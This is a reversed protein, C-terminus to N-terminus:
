SQPNPLNLRPICSRWDSCSGLAGHRGDGSRSFASERADSEFLLEQFPIQLESITLLEATQHRATNSVATDLARAWISAGRGGANGGTLGVSSPLGLASSM